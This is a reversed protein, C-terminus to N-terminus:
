FVSDVYIYDCELWYVNLAWLFFGLLDSKSINAMQIMHLLIQMDSCEAEKAIGGVLEEHRTEKSVTSSNGGQTCQQAVALPPPKQERADETM